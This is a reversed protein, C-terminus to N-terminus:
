NSLRKVTNLGEGTSIEFSPTYLQIRLVQFSDSTPIFVVVRFANAMRGHTFSQIESCRAIQGMNEM